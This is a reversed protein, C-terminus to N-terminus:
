TRSRRGIRSCTSARSSWAWGGASRAISGIGNRGPRIGDAAFRLGDITSGARVPFARPRQPLPPVHEQRQGVARHDRRGRGARGLPERGRLIEIAGHRKFLDNVEIM